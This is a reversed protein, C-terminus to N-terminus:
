LLYQEHFSKGQEEWAKKVREAEIEAEKEIKQHKEKIIEYIESQRKSLEDDSIIQVNSFRKVLRANYKNLLILFFINWHCIQIFHIFIFVM